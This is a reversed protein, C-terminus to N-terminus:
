LPSSSGISQPKHKLLSCTVSSGTQSRFARRISAGEGAQHHRVAGGRITPCAPNPLLGSPHLVDRLRLTTRISRDAKRAGNASRVSPSVLQKTAHRNGFDQPVCHYFAGAVSALITAKGLKRLFCGEVNIVDNRFRGSTWGRGFVQGQGANRTRQSFRCSLSHGVRNGPLLARHEIRAAVIPLCMKAQLAGLYKSHRCDSPGCHVCQLHVTPM